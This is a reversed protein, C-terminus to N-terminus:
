NQIFYAINIYKWKNISKYLYDLTAFYSSILGTFHIFSHQVQLTVVRGTWVSCMVSCVVTTVNKSCWGRMCNTILLLSTNYDHPHPTMCGTHNKKKKKEQGGTSLQILWHAYDANKINLVELSLKFDFNNAESLLSINLLM